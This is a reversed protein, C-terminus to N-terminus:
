AFSSTIRWATLVQRALGLISSGLTAYSRSKKKRTPIDAHESKGLPFRPSKPDTM